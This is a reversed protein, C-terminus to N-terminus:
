SRISGGGDVTIDCGTTFSAEDSALWVVARAVEEPEGIRNMPHTAAFNTEINEPTDAGSYKYRNYMPTRIAGPHVMNARIPVGREACDLAVSRTLGLLGAKSASYAAVFAAARIAIMSGINVIACPEGSAEMAPIAARMGYYPGNLNIDITREWTDLTGDVVNGPESIGAINCLVTLKGFRAVTAKVAEHWQDRNRVDLEFAEANEGLEEALAKAKDIQVDCLMVSGGEDVIMRGVTAGIGEAGGTVLAVKGSM